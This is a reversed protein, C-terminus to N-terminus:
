KLSQNGAGFVNNPDLSQKIQQKWKLTGESMIQPMFGARIKGIGHHHSLSGGLRLIEERAIDELELYVKSPNEIGKFYFGFYFYIAVGTKYLQTIRSTVFPKGPLGRKAYEENLVRKVNECIALADTFACSTEFSEAIIHYNM